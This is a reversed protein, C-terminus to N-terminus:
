EMEVFGGSTPSSHVPRLGAPRLGSPIDLLGKRTQWEGRFRAGPPRNEM